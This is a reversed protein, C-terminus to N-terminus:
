ANRRKLQTYISFFAFSLPPLVIFYLGALYSSNKIASIVCLLLLLLTIVAFTIALIKTLRYSWPKHFLLGLGAISSVFMVILSLSYRWDMIAALTLPEVPFKVIAAISPFLILATFFMLAFSLFVASITKDTLSQRQSINMFVKGISLLFLGMPVFPLLDPEFKFGDHSFSTFVAFLCAAAGFIFCIVAFIRLLIKM